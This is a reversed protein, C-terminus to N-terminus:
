TSHAIDVEFTQAAHREADLHTHVV